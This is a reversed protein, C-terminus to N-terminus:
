YFLISIFFYPSYKKGMRFIGWYFFLAHILLFFSYNNSIKKFILVLVGYGIEYGGIINILATEFNNTNEFNNLYNNWDVGTEWRLGITVVLFVYLILSLLKNFVKLNKYCLQILGFVFILVISILYIEM